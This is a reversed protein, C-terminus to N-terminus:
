GYNDGLLKHIVRYAEKLKLNVEWTGSDTNAIMISQLERLEEQSLLSFDMALLENIDATNNM